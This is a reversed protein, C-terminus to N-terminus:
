SPFRANGFASLIAEPDAGPDRGDTGKGRLPSSAALRWGGRDFPVLGASDASSPFFNGAPYLGARGGVIVNGRVVSGPFYQALAPRGTGAATGAIGYENHPAINDRFVFGSHAAGEAMIISGTQFATNHEIIVEATGNLIQFLIGKGGWRAGGVDYFFNGSILVRRTQESTGGVDDRGLINVGSGSHRVLNNAFTM